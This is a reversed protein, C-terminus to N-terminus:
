KVGLVLAVDAAVARQAFEYPPRVRVQPVQDLVGREEACFRCVLWELAGGAWDLLEVALASTSPFKVGWTQANRPKTPGLAASTLTTSFGCTWVTVRHQQRVAEDAIRLATTLQDSEYPPGILGLFVSRGGPAPDPM